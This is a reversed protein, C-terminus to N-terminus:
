DIYNLFLLLILLILLIYIINKPLIPENLLNELEPINKLFHRSKIFKNYNQIAKDKDYIHEDKDFFYFYDKM